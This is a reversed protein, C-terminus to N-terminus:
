CPIPSSDSTWVAAPEGRSGSAQQRANGRSHVWGVISGGVAEARATLGRDIGASTKRSDRRFAIASTPVGGRREIEEGNWPATHIRGNQDLSVVPRPCVYQDGPDIVSELVGEHQQSNEDSHQHYM